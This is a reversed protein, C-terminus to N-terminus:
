ATPNQYILNYTRLETGNGYSHIAALRQTNSIASGAYYASSPDPRQEYDFKIYSTSSYTPISTVGYAYDIRDIRHGANGDVYTFRIPNGVSDQFSSIAWTMINSTGALVQTSGNGNGYYSISGDKRK